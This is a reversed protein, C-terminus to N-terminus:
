AGICSINVERSTEDIIRFKILYYSPPLMELAKEGWEVVTLGSKGLYDDWGIECLEATDQLRFLDFHYLSRAGPYENVITFSPSHVLEEDIGLAIALGRVFVTKGAGLEGQLVLVDSPRLLPSISKALAM